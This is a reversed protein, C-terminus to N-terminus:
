KEREKAKRSIKEKGEEKRRKEKGEMGKKIQEKDKGEVDKRRKRLKRKWGKGRKKLGEM